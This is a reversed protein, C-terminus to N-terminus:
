YGAEIIATKGTQGTKLVDGMKGSFNEYILFPGTQM